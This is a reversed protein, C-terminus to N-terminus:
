GCRGPTRARRFDRAPEMAGGAHSGGVAQGAAAVGVVPVQSSSKGGIWYCRRCRAFPRAAGTRRRAQLVTKQFNGIGFLRKHQPVASRVPPHHIMVVRFLGRKAAEDSCAAWGSRRTRAFSATPWSRRPPARRHVRRDARRQGARASLSLRPPRGARRARRRTMWAGWARCVKDFAGPVYADHNGPVVSVDHPPGSRRWGSGPWSSRATSRWTSSTAPSPSIIPRTDGQHRRRDRRHVGDHLFHRRNRQWNVYGVM